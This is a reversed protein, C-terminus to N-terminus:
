TEDFRRYHEGTSNKLVNDYPYMPRWTFHENNNNEYKFFPPSAIAFKGLFKGLICRVLAM